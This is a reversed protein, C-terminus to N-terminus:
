LVEKLVFPSGSLSPFRASKKTQAGILFARGRLWSKNFVFDSTLLTNLISTHQRRKCVGTVGVFIMGHRAMSNIAAGWDFLPLVRLTARKM